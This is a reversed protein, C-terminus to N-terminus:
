PEGYSAMWKDLIGEFSDPFAQGNFLDRILDAMNASLVSFHDTVYIVGECTSVHCGFFYQAFWEISVLLEGDRHLAECFM